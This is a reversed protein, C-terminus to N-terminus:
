IYWVAMYLRLLRKRSDNVLIVVPLQTKAVWSGYISKEYLDTDTECDAIVKASM